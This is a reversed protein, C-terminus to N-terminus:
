NSYPFIYVEILATGGGAGVTADSLQVTYAGPTLVGFFVQDNSNAILPFAGVVGFILNMAQADFQAPSFNISIPPTDDLAIPLSPTLTSYTVLSWNQGAALMAGSSSFLKLKPNQSVPSVGFNALSPGIARILVLRPANEEIVFGTISIDGARLTVRNSINALFTNPSSLFFSFGFDIDLGSTDSRFDLIESRAGTLSPVNFSLTAENPNGPTPSYTYTGSSFGSYTYLSSLIGEWNSQSLLECTGNPALYILESSILGGIPWYTNLVFFSNGVQSPPSAKASVAAICWAIALGLPKLSKM